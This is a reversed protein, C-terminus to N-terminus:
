RPSRLVAKMINSELHDTRGYIVWQSDPSVAFAPPGYVRPWAPLSALSKVERSRLNVCEVTVFTAARRLYCVGDRVMTWNGHEVHRVIQEGPGSEAVGRLWLSEERELVIQL